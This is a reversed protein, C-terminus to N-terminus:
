KFGTWDMVEFPAPLTKDKFGKLQEQTLAEIRAHWKQMRENRDKTRNMMRYCMTSCYRLAREVGYRKSKRYKWLFQRLTM